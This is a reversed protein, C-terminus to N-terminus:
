KNSLQNELDLYYQYQEKNDLAQNIQKLAVVTEIAQNVELSNKFCLMAKEYISNRTDDDKEKLAMNLYIAGLNYWAIEKTPDLETAKTTWM